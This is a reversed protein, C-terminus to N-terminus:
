ILEEIWYGIVFAIVGFALMRLGKIWPNKKGLRGLYTGAFFLTGLAVVISLWAASGVELTGLSAFLFPFATIACSTLPTLFNILAIVTTAKRASRAITTEDLNRFLAKQLEAIKRDRELSEAEYVSVGTSIGLALSSTVMTALIVRLDPNESFASGIIVGLLMFTSDFLTNIFFRRLAPGLDMGKLKDRLFGFDVKEKSWISVLNVGILFYMNKLREARALNSGIRRVM